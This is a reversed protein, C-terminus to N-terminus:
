NYWQVCKVRCLGKHVFQNWMCFCSVFLIVFYILQMSASIHRIQHRQIKIFLRCTVSFYDFALFRLQSYLRWPLLIIFGLLVSETYMCTDIFKISTFLYLNPSEIAHADCLLTTLKNIILILISYASSATFTFDTTGFWHCVSSAKM